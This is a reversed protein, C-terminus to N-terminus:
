QGGQNFLRMARALANKKIQCGRGGVWVVALTVHYMLVNAKHSKLTLLM